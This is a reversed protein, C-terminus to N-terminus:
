NVEMLDQTLIVILFPQSVKKAIGKIYSTAGHCALFISLCKIKEIAKGKSSNYNTYFIFGEENYKKLASSKIPFVM